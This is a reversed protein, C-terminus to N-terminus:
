FLQRAFCSIFKCVTQLREDSAPVGVIIRSPYLNDYLARGERLFEPSFLINVSGYEKRVHETFGVPVTSKVVMTADPNIAIVQRIVSEVSSTDFYNKTEDYNTPTAIIVFDANKYASNGDTTATLDLQKTALYEEIEKDAIPSKKNSILDVKEPVVDVATVKNHKALLVAMSLGVYGLGAVAIKTM